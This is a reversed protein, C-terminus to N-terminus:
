SCSLWRDEVCLERCTSPAFRCHPFAYKINTKNCRTALEFSSPYYHHSITLGSLPLSSLGSCAQRRRLNEQIANFSRRLSCRWSPNILDISKSNPHWSNLSQKRFLSTSTSIGVYTQTFHHHRWRNRYFSLWPSWIILIRGITSM